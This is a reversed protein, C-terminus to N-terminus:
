KNCKVTPSFVEVHPMVFSYHAVQLPVLLLLHQHLYQLNNDFMICVIYALTYIRM